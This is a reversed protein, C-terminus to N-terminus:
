TSRYTPSSNGTVLPTRLPSTCPRRAERQRKGVGTEVGHDRELHQLLVHGIRLVHDALAHTHQPRTPPKHDGGVELPSQVLLRM